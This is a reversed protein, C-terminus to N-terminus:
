QDDSAYIRLRSHKLVENFRGLCERANDRDGNVAGALRNIVAEVVDVNADSKLSGDPGIQSLYLLYAIKFNVSGKVKDYSQAIEIMKSLCAVRFDEMFSSAYYHALYLNKVADVKQRDNLESVNIGSFFSDHEPIKGDSVNNGLAIAEEESMLLPNGSALYSGSM